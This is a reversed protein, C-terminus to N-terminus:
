NGGISKEADNMAFILDADDFEIGTRNAFEVPDNCDVSKEAYEVIESVIQYVEMSEGEKKIIDAIKRTASSSFNGFAEKQKLDVVASEIIEYKLLEEEMDFSFNQAQLADYINTNLFTYGFKNFFKKVLKRILASM